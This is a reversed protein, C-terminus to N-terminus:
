KNFGDLLVDRLWLKDGWVVERPRCLMLKLVFCSSETFEFIFSFVIDNDNDQDNNENPLYVM